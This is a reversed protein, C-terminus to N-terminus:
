PEEHHCVVGRFIERFSEVDRSFSDVDRSAIRFRLLRSTKECYLFLEVVAEDRRGFLVGGRKLYHVYKATHGGVEFDRLEILEIKNSKMIKGLEKEINAEADKKKDFKSISLKLRYAIKSELNVLATNIYGIAVWRYELGPVDRNLMDCEADSVDVISWLKPLKLFAYVAVGLLPHRAALHFENFEKDELSM